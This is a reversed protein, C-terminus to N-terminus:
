TCCYIGPAQGLAAGGPCYNLLLYQVPCPPCSAAAAWTLWPAGTLGKGVQIKLLGRGGRCIGAYGRGGGGSGTKLRLRPLYSRILEAQGVKEAGPSCCLQVCQVARIRSGYSALLLNETGVGTQNFAEPVLSGATVWPLSSRM